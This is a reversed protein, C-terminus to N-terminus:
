SGTTVGVVVFREHATLHGGTSAVVTLVGHESFPATTSWPANDGGAPVPGVKDVSGDITRVAVTISEDVGTIRGAVTMPSSVQEGPSPQTISFNDAAAAVVEWPANEDGFRVLHIVAATHETGSPLDYGVSVDARNAAVDAATVKTIDQFQLYGTVFFLATARADSHWPSHGNPGDVNEWQKAQTGNAFPWLPQYGALVPPPVRTAQVTTSAPTPGSTDSSPSSNPASSTSPQPGGGGPPAPKHTASPSSTLAFTTAAAAAVAAAALLPALWRVTQRQPREGTPADAPRLDHEQIGDVAAHLAARIRNDIDNM